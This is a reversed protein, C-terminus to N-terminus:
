TKIILGNKELCKTLIFELEKCKNEAKKENLCKIYYEKQNRCISINKNLIYSWDINM